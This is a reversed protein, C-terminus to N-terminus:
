FDLETRQRRVGPRRTQAVVVAVTRREGVLPGGARDGTIDIPRHLVQIDANIRIGVGVALGGAVGLRVLVALEAPRTDLVTNVRNRHSRRIVVGDCRLTIPDIDVMVLELVVVVFVGVIDACGVRIM